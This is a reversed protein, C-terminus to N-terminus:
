LAGITVNYDYDWVWDPYEIYYDIAHFPIGSNLSHWLNFTELNGTNYERGEFIYNKLFDYKQQLYTNSKARERFINGAHVYTTFSEAFDEPNNTKAYGSVFEGDNDVPRLLVYSRWFPDADSFDFSIKGFHVDRRDNIESITRYVAGVGHGFEHAVLDM